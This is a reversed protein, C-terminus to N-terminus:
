VRLFEVEPPAGDELTLIACQAHGDRPLSASGPNVTWVGLVQEFAARHTHGYLAIDCGQDRAAQALFQPSAQVHQRHGHVIYLRHGDIELVLEKPASSGWDNNGRVTMVVRGLREQMEDGDWSMDGLHIIRDMESQRRFCAIADDVRGHTDSVLFVRSM